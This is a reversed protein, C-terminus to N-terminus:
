LCAFVFDVRSDVDICMCDNTVAMIERSDRNVGIYVLRHFDIGIRVECGTKVAAELQSLVFQFQNM